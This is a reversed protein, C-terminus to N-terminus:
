ASNVRALIFGDHGKSGVTQVGTATVRRDSGVLDHLRRIGQVDQDDADAQLIRGGRVTNDIYILTGPRSLGVAALFYDPNSRKDADIFIFDFPGSLTPLTEIAPGVIVRVRDAVGARALNARAVEAHKPEYELSILEGDPPLARAMCTTSYGGLTGIELVRKAGVSAVLINLLQGMAASVAIDPLGAESSLRLTETLVPDAPILTGVIYEDVDAPTFDSM